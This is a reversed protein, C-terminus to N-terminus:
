LFICIWGFLNMFHVNGRRLYVVCNFDYDNTLTQVSAGADYSERLKPAYEELITYDYPYVYKAKIDCVGEVEILLLFYACM